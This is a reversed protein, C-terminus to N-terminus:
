RGQRDSFRDFGIALKTQQLMEFIIPCTEAREIIGWMRSPLDGGVYPYGKCADPRDEYVTCRNDLLFPCPQADLAPQHDLDDRVLYQKEFSDRDVGIRAALRVIEEDSMPILNDRCCAACATCDMQRAAEEGAQRAVENVRQVLQHSAMKLFTRFRINEHEREDGLRAVIDPNKEM